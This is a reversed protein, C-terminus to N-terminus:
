DDVICAFLSYETVILCTIYIIYCHRVIIFFERYICLIVTFYVVFQKDHRVKIYIVLLSARLTMCQGAFLLFYKDRVTTQISVFNPSSNLIRM